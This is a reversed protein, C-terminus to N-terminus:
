TIRHADMLRAAADGETRSTVKSEPKDTRGRKRNEGETTAKNPTNKKLVNLETETEENPQVKSITVWTKM